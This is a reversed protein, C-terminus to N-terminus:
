APREGFLATGLRVMTSGEEVALEYDNSMGMSLHEAEFGSVQRACADFLERAARFTQRLVGEEETLPAMTMLGRIRLSPLAAVQAIAELAQPGGFGGKAEEGSTNVQVLGAVEVGAKEAEKSLERALRQSDISHILRFLPLAMKVKNRQLHGILHWSVREGGPRGGLEAAKDALEQVRNEGCRTLGADLAAEVAKLPHGKTVAVIEVMASGGSREHAAELRERVEPLRARITAEYM